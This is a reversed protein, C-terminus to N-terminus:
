DEERSLVLNLIATFLNFFSAFLLLAGAVPDMLRFLFANLLIAAILSVAIGGILVSFRGRPSPWVVVTIALFVAVTLLLALQITGPAKTLALDLLPTLAVGSVAGDVVLCAVGLLRDQEAAWLAIRSLLIIVALMVLWGVTTSLLSGLATTSLYWGALAASLLSLLLLLYAKSVNPGTPAAM